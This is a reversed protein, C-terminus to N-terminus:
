KPLANVFKIFRNLFEQLEDADFDFDHEELFLTINSATAPCRRFINILDFIVDDTYNYDDGGDPVREDFFETLAETQPLSRCFDVVDMDKLAIPFPRFNVDERHQLLSSVEENFKEANKEFEDDSIDDDEDFVHYKDTIEADVIFM